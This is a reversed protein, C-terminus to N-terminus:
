FKKEWTILSRINRIFMFINCTFIVIREYSIDIKESGNIMDCVLAIKRVVAGDSFDSLKKKLEM